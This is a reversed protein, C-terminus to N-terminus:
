EGAATKENGLDILDVRRPQWMSNWPTRTMKRFVIALFICRCVFGGTVAWAAAEVGLAPYFLLIMGLNVCLGLSAAWSCIEPRNISRLWIQFPESFAHAIVGPALIWCLPVVPLFAESLILRVATVSVPLFAALAAATGWLVLPLCSAVLETRNREEGTIRPLLASCIAEAILSFRFMLANAAAFWGIESSSAIFGLVVVNALPKIRGSIQAAYNRLGYGLIPDLTSRSPMKLVLGSHRRLHRICLVLGVLHGVGFAMIAGNIGWFWALLLISLANVSVRFVSFVGIREFRRIAIFQPLMALSPAMLPILLIALYFSLPEAKRFIAIDSHILPVAILISLGFSALGIVLVASMSESIDMKGTMIFHQAGDMIGPTFILLLLASFATCVAYVGRGEPLLTYALISQILLALVLLICQTTFFVAADRGGIARALERAAELQPRLRRM